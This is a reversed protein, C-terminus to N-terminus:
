EVTAVQQTDIKGSAYTVKFLERTVLFQNGDPASAVYREQDEGRHVDSLFLGNKKQVLPADVGGTKGQYYLDGNPDRCIWVTTGIETVIKLVQRLDDPFGLARAMGRTEQPCLAASASGAATPAATPGPNEVVDNTTQQPEAAQLRARHREGLVFGGTMGIITLFVTAIVVPFFLPRRPPSLDDSPTV